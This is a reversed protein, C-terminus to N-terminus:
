QSGYRAREYAQLVYPPLPRKLSDYARKVPWYLSRTPPHYPYLRLGVLKKGAVIEGAMEKYNQFTGVLSKPVWGLQKGTDKDWLSIAPEGEYETHYCIIHRWPSGAALKTLIKPRGEFSTGAAKFLCTETPM